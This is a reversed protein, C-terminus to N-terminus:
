DGADLDPEIVLRVTGKSPITTKDGNRELNFELLYTGPKLTGTLKHTVVGPPGAETVVGVLDETVGNRSAVIKECTTATLDYGPFEWAIAHTDGQKRRMPEPTQNVYAPRM